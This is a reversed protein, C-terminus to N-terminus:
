QAQPSWEKRFAKFGRKELENKAKLAAEVGTYPGVLVRHFRDTPSKFVFAPFSKQRLSEALTKANEEQAMAGVQLVFAPQDLSPGTNSPPAPHHPTPGIGSTAAAPIRSSPGALNPATTSERGEQKTGAKQSHHRLPLLVLLLLVAALSWGVLRGAKGSGRSVNADVARGSVTGADQTETASQISRSISSQSQDEYAVEADSGPPVVAEIASESVTRADQTETPSQISPSISSQSQDEHAVQMDSARPGDMTKADQTETPSQISPSISPQSRDEFVLEFMTSEPTPFTKIPESSDIAGGVQATEELPVHTNPFAKADARSFISLQIQIRTETSLDFFEVGALKKSASKWAIRGKAEIWAESQSLQFRMGLSDDDTLEEVTQLALGNQSINLVAGRNNEGLEVQSSSLTQRCHIRRESMHPNGGSQVTNDM